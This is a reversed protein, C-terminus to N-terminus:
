KGQGSQEDMHTRYAKTFIKIKEIVAESDKKKLTERLATASTQKGHLRGLLYAMFENWEDYKELKKDSDMKEANFKLGYKYRPRLWFNGGEISVVKYEVPDEVGWFTKTVEALRSKQEKQNEYYGTAPDAMDKFEYIAQRGAQDILVWVRLMGQSGGTEKVKYAADKVIAGPLVDGVKALLQQARALDKASLESLPHLELAVQDM